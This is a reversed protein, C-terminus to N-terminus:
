IQMVFPKLIKLNKVILADLNDIKEVRLDFNWNPVQRTLRMRWALPLM